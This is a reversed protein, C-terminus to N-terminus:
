PAAPPAVLPRRKLRYFEITPSVFYGEFMRDLKMYLRKNLFPADFRQVLEFDGQPDRLRDYAAMMEWNGHRYHREYLLSTIEILDIRGGSLAHYIASEDSLILTYQDRHVPLGHYRAWGDVLITTGRPVHADIWRGAQIRTDDRYRATTQWAFVGTYVLTVAMAVWAATRAGRVPSEMWAGMWTGALTVAVVLIPLYYRLPTFTWSGTVFFFLAAFGVVVVTRRNPKWCAWVAGALCSAYLALGLSFPWAAVLQYIWRRFWWGRAYVCFGLHLSLTHNHEYSMAALVDKFRLFSYPTVAFCFVLSVAACAALRLITGALPRRASLAAGVIAVVVIAATYKSGVALGLAAGALAYDRWRNVEMLRLAAILTVTTWFTMPVDTIAAHSEWIHLPMLALWLAALLAGKANAGLQRALMYVAPVTATGFLAVIWRGAVYCPWLNDAAALGLTRLALGALAILYMLFGPYNLFVPDLTHRDFDGPVSLVHEMRAMLGLAHKMVYDFEDPHLDVRSPAGWALGWLRLFLGMLTIIALAYGVHKQLKCVSVQM